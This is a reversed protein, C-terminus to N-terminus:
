LKPVQTISVNDNVCIVIILVKKGIGAIRGSCVARGVRVKCSTGVTLQAMPPELVLGCRVISTSDEEPWFILAFHEPNDFYM